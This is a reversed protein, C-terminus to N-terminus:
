LGDAHPIRFPPPQRGDVDTFGYERALEGATLIRGSKAVANPDAALAAVARGLYVPRETASLDFPAATHAALVRETRMFGPAMAVAVVGYPRLERALGFALRTM